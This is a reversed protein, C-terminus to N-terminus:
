FNRPRKTAPWAQVQPFSRPQATKGMAGKGFQATKGLGGKGAAKAFGKPPAHTGIMDDGAAAMAGGVRTMPAGGGARPTAVAKAAGPTIPTMSRGPQSLLPTMPTALRSAGSQSSEGEWVKPQASSPAPAGDEEPPPREWSAEKTPKHWYYHSEHEESWLQEWGQPLPAEEDEETAVVDAVGFDNEQAAADAEMGPLDDAYEEELAEDGEDEPLADDGERHLQVESAGLGNADAYLKFSVVSGVKLTDGKRVNRWNCYVHRKGDERALLAQLDPALEQLPSIWGFFKEWRTVMGRVRQQGLARAGENMEGKEDAAAEARAKADADGGEQGAAAKATKEAQPREWQTTRTPAHWYYTQKADADYEETWGPPFEAEGKDPADPDGDAGPRTWSTKKTAAHWYFHQEHELSWHKTWGEPLPGINDAVAAGVEKNKALAKGDGKALGVDAAGLGREDTFLSFELRVGAILKDHDVSTRVDAKQLYVLGSKNVRPHEIAAAPKVWGWTGKWEQIVGQVRGLAPLPRRGKPEIAGKGGKGAGKAGGSALPKFAAIRSVVAKGIGGM